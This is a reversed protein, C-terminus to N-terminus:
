RRSTSRKPRGDIVVIPSHKEGDNRAKAELEQLKEIRADGGGIDLVVYFGYDIDEAAKYVELQTTYGHVVQPNTSLKLEVVVRANFGHSVLFDVPGGGSNTEPSIALDNAKCYNWAIAFFLRQSHSEHLKEGKDNYLNKWLGQHEIMHRYQGIITEVVQAVAAPTQAALILQLPHTQTTEAALALWGILGQPDRAVDYPQRPLDRVSALLGEFAQRSALFIERNKRKSQM